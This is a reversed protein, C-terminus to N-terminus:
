LLAVGAAEEVEHIEPSAARTPDEPAVREQVAAAPEDPVRVDDAGAAVSCSPSSGVEGVIGEAAGTAAAIAITGAVEAPQTLTAEQGENTPPPASADAVRETGPASEKPVIEM